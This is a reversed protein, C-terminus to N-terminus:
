HGTMPYSVFAFRRSDPAWSNVNLTGQGGFVRFTRLPKEWAETAVLHVDVDVNEPHGLTGSPFAVYTAFRGDPSLHPFWDVTDSAVVRELPGGAAPLRALQAHGLVSAFAETNLHIWAGDPSYEPGDVHGAGTDVLRSPGGQAPMLALQGRAGATDRPIAVYALTKGDPSVGHLFHLLGDDGTLRTGTGGASPARYLHGDMGSLFVHRGDPALVHDNNIPPVGHLPIEVLGASKQALDLRWLRGDGNLLLHAGDASWNPAELLLDSTEHVLEPVTSEASAIWVRTRQGVLLERPRM